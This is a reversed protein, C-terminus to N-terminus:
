FKLVCVVRVLAKVVATFSILYVSDRKNSNIIDNQKQKGRTYVFDTEYIIITTLM